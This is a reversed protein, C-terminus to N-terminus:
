NGYTRTVQDVVHRVRVTATLQKELQIAAAISDPTAVVTTGPQAVNVIIQQGNGVNVNIQDSQNGNVNVQNGSNCPTFESGGRNGGNQNGGNNGGNQNGGNNGGNQNGGNNGGRNGGRKNGGRNNNNCNCCSDAKADAARAISDAVRADEEAKRAISDTVALASDLEHIKGDTWAYVSDVYASDAKVRDELRDLRDKTKRNCAGAAMMIITAGAITGYKKWNFTM